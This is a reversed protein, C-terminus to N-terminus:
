CQPKCNSSELTDQLHCVKGYKALFQLALNNRKADKLHIM